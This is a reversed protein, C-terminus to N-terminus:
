GPDTAQAPGGSEGRCCVRPPYPDWVTSPCRRPPARGRIRSSQQMKVDLHKKLHKSAHSGGDVKLIMKQHLRLLHGQRFVVGHASDNFIGEPFKESPPISGRTSLFGLQGGIPACAKLRSHIQIGRSGQEIAHLISSEERRSCGLKRAGRLFLAGRRTDGTKPIPRPRDTTRRGKLAQKSHHEASKSADWSKREGSGEPSLWRTQSHKSFDVDRQNRGAIPMPIKKCTETSDTVSSAIQDTISVM